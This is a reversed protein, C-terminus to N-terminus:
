IEDSLDASTNETKKSTEWVMRSISNVCSVTLHMQGASWEALNTSANVLQWTVVVWQFQYWKRDVSTNTVYVLVIVLFM